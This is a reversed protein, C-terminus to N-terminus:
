KVGLYLTAVGFTLPIIRVEALGSALMRDALERGEPFEGVSQPLYSYADEDNRALWQGVRPLVHRFYWGYFSKMPQRTPMSFELVAVRGAPRCVRAMERLGLDTDAVNRLGFAVSVVQFMNAPFPLQQTDAELFTMNENGGRRALKQRGIELMERCFDAAMIPTSRSTRKRFAFALDGTGTCVDLIPDSGEPRAIRVTRWRWYRDVNMSLLHNMRDYKPAIAGFMQQIRQNSKNVAM